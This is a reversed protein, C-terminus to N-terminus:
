PPTASAHRHKQKRARIQLIKPHALLQLHCRRLAVDQPLLLLWQKVVDINM